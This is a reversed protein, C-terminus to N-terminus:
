TKKKNKAAEKLAQLEQEIPDEQKKFQQEVPDAATVEALSEHEVIKNEMRAITSLTADAAALAEKGSAGTSFRRAEIKSLDKRQQEVADHQSMLEIQVQNLKTQQNKLEQEAALALNEDNRMRAMEVRKEWLSIQVKTKEIQAELQKEVAINKALAQRVNLLEAELEDNIM